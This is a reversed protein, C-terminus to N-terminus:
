PGGGEQGIRRSPGAFTFLSKAACDCLVPRENLVVQFNPKLAALHLRGIMVQGVYSTQCTYPEQGRPGARTTPTLHAKLGQFILHLTLHKRVAAVKLRGCAVVAQGQLKEQHRGQQGPPVAM